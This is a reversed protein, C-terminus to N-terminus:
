KASDGRLANLQHPLIPLHEPLRAAIHNNYWKGCSMLSVNSRLTNLYRVWGHFINLSTQERHRQFPIHCCHLGTNRPRHNDTQTTQTNFHSSTLTHTQIRTHMRACTRTNICTHINTCTKIHIYTHKIIKTHTHPGHLVYQGVRISRHRYSNWVVCM